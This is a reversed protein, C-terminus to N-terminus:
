TDSLFELRTSYEKGRAECTAKIENEGFYMKVTNLAVTGLNEKEKFPNEKKFYALKKVNPNDTFEPPEGPGDYSYIVTKFSHDCNTGGTAYDRLKWQTFVHTVCEDVDIKQGKKVFWRCFGRVMLGYQSPYVRRYIEKDPEYLYPRSCGVGYCRRAVRTKVSPNMGVYVAGRVVALEPRPPVGVYDVRGKFEDRIRGLLYESTGFGGVLLITPCEKADDLQQRILKLVDKIVPEFVKDRLEEVSLTMLDDSIGIEEANNLTDFFGNYPLSMRLEEDGNFYPKIEKVFTEVLRSMLNPPIRAMAEDGFKEEFLKQANKDLFISGCSAGHGSVVESLQRGATGQEMEYVILDVTGGGADCVMFRDKHGLKFRECKRECYAAAAEPESVLVLRNPHDTTEILKAKIAARRMLNKARDSWMAPVTLCFRFHQPTFTRGFSKLIQPTVYAVLGELYDAIANLPTLNGALPDNQLAEDLQLKFQSLMFHNNEKIIAPSRAKNYAGWGWAVCKSDAGDKQYLSLTPVKPYDGRKEPWESVPEIEAEDKHFAFACGSYTTGFDIGVVIPYQSPDFSSYEYALM